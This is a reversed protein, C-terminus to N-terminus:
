IATGSRVATQVDKHVILDMGEVKVFSAHLDRSVMAVSVHDTLGTARRQSADQHVITNVTRVMDAMTVNNVNQEPFGRCATARVTTRSVNEQCVVMQVFKHVHTVMNGLSVTTANTDLLVTGVIVTVTLLVVNKREADLRVIISVSNDMSEALVSKADQERLVLNVLVHEAEWTASQM